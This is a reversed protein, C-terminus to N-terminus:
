EEMASIDQVKRINHIHKSETQWLIHSLEFCTKFDHVSIEKAM